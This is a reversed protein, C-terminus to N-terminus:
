KDFQEFKSNNSIFEPVIEEEAATCASLVFVCALAFLVLKRMIRM